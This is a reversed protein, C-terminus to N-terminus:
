ATATDALATNATQDGHLLSALGAAAVAGAFQGAVYTMATQMKLGFVITPGL